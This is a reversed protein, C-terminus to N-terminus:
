IAKVVNIQGNNMMNILQNSLEIIENQLGAQLSSIKQSPSGQFPSLSYALDNCQVM